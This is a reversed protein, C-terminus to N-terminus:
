SVDGVVRAVGSCPERPPLLTSRFDKIGFHLAHLGSILFGSPLERHVNQELIRFVDDDLSGFQLVLERLEWWPLLRFGPPSIGGWIIHLM